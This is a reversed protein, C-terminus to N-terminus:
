MVAEFLLTSSAIVGNKNGRVTLTLTLGDSVTDDIIIKCSSNTINTLAVGTPADDDLIWTTVVNIM